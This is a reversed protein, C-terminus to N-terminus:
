ALMADPSLWIYYKNLTEPRDGTIVSLVNIPVGKKVAQAVFHHRFLHPHVHFKIGARVAARAVSSQVARKTLSALRNDENGKPKALIRNIIATFDAKDADTLLKYHSLLANQIRREGRSGKAGYDKGARYRIMLETGSPTPVFDSMRIGLAESIRLGYKAMLLVALKARDGKIEMVLRRIDEDTLNDEIINSAAEGRKIAVYKIKLTPLRQRGRTWNLFALINQVNVLVTSPGQKMGAAIESVNNEDLKEIPMNHAAAYPFLHQIYSIGENAITAGTKPTTDFYRRLLEVNAAWTDPVAHERTYADIRQMVWEIAKDRTWLEM